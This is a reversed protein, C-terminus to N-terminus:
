NHKVGRCWQTKGVFRRPQFVAEDRRGGGGPHIPELLVHGGQGLPEVLLLPCAFSKLLQQAATPDRQGLVESVGLGSRM